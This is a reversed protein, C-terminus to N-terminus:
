TLYRPAVLKAVPQNVSIFHKKLQKYVTLKYVRMMKEFQEAEASLPEVIAGESKGVLVDVTRQLGAIQQNKTRIEEEFYKKLEDLDNAFKTIVENGFAVQNDNKKSITEPSEYFFTIPVDFFDAIEALRTATMTNHKIMGDFGNATMKLYDYLSKKTKGRETLLKEVKQGFNYHM